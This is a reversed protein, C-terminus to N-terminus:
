ACLIGSRSSPRPAAPAAPAPLPLNDEYSDSIAIALSTGCKCGRLDLTDYYRRGETDIGSQIGHHELRIWAAEDYTRGCACTKPFAGPKYAFLIAVKM